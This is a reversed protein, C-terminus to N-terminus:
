ARAAVLRALPPRAAGDPWAAKGKFVFRRRAAHYAPDSGFFNRRMQALEEARYEDIPKIREDNMRREHKDHLLRWFNPRGALEATRQMTEAEFQEVSDGFADDILGISKAKRTGIPQLDETLQRAQDRGVRRPLTYTWYESGYLNGMGKYHPNLVVGRRALVVDAALALMAGGAGANGRLAAVLLHSNTYLIDRVLDDIANINRWSEHAPSAAAEITNLHIGNSFFDPGGMLAIVRTPRARAFLFAARLRHCQETSMAGNYLDFYLYGVQDREVYRIERYTNYDVTTEISLPSTPISHARPGLAQVAPLKIGPLGSADKAMLHSIWVAGDVTGRCIAGDRQALIAGPAGTLRGEEHAGYLFYPDGVSADLVGPASDAARIKRVILATSDRLWDIARDSQRMSPRLRGRVDPAAYDLPRPAFRNSEFRAVADLVGRVAAETIQNRYLSSKPRPPNELEFEHSAWIPGADMEAEAQLVTVGWRAQGDAIAWDLSSPGRDGIIGPHVILCTYRAWITRPIAVKLMPAIILEPAHREVAHLMAADCSALVISVAHGRETLEIQLRQSLSNHASTIFLFKM